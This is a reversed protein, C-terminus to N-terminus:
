LTQEKQIQKRLISMKAANKRDRGAISITCASRSPAANQFLRITSLEARGDDTGAEGGRKSSLPIKPYRYFNNM